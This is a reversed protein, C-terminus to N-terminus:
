FIFSCIYNVQVAKLTGPKNYRSTRQLSSRSSYSNSSSAQEGRKYRWISSMKCIGVLSICSTHICFWLILFHHHLLAGYVVYSILVSSKLHLGLCRNTSSYRGQRYICVVYQLKGFQQRSDESAIHEGDHLLVCRILKSVQLNWVTSLCQKIEKPSM